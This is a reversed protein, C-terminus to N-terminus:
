EEEEEEERIPSAWKAILSFAPTLEWFIYGMSVFVAVVVITAFGIAPTLLISAVLTLVLTVVLGLIPGLNRFFRLYESDTTEIAFFFVVCMIASLLYPGGFIMDVWFRSYGWFTPVEWFLSWMAWFATTALSGVIAIAIAVLTFFIKDTFCDPRSHFPSQPEM